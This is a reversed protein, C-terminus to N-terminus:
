REERLYDATVLTQPIEEPRIHSVEGLSGEALQHAIDLVRANPGSLLRRNAHIDPLVLGRFLSLVEPGAVGLREAMRYSADVPNTRLHDLARFHAAILHQVAERYERLRDRRIALVDFITDPISRSDFLRTAGNELLISAVPEFTILADIEGSDWAAQHTDITLPVVIVDRRQLGASGLVKRLMLAGLGSSEVGIRKNALHDLRLIDPRVILVDAGASINFVLVVALDIGDQRGRLVEDLTLAAGMAQGERLLAMSRTASTTELLQVRSGDLWGQRRALFMLEYGPWIHSAITLPAPPGSCAVLAPALALGGLLALVGRRPLAQGARCEEGM